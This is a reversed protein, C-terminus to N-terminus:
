RRSGKNNNAPINPPTQSLDIEWHFIGYEGLILRDEPVFIQRDFSGREISKGNNGM